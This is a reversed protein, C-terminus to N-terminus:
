GECGEFSTDILLIGLSSLALSSLAMGWPVAPLVRGVWDASLFSFAFFHGLIRANFPSVVMVFPEKFRRSERGAREGRKVVGEGGAKEKGGRKGIM